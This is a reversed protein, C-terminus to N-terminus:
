NQSVISRRRRVLLGAGGLCLASITAPEPVTNVNLTASELTGTDGGANDSITLTWVGAASHGGFTLNLNVKNGANTATGLTTAWYDGSPLAGNSDLAVLPPVPDVGSDIFRYTGGFNSSDGLGSSTTAGLRRMIDATTGDPAQLTAILDGVWSHTLNTMTLDISTVNGTNVVPFTLTLSTNDLIPGGPVTYPTAQAVVPTLALAVAPAAFRLFRSRAHRTM